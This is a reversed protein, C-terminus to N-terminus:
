AWIYEDLYRILLSLYPFDWFKGPISIMEMFGQRDVWAAEAVEEQQLQLEDITVNTKILYVDVLSDKRSYSVAMEAESMDPSFGMEEETERICAQASNEGALASGGTFAWVGPALDKTESRRQILLQGLDNYYVMHVVLHRVGEPIPEGRTIEFGLRNRFRDYADWKEGAAM